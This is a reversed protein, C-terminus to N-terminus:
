YTHSYFIPDADPTLTDNQQVMKIMTTTSHYYVTLQCKPVVKQFLISLSFIHNAFSPHHRDPALTDNDQIMKIMTM